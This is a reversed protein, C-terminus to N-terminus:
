WEQPGLPEKGFNALETKRDSFQHNMPRLDTSRVDDYAELTERKAKSLVGYALAPVIVANRPSQHHHITSKIVLSKSVRVRWNSVGGRGVAHAKESCSRRTLLGAFMLELARINNAWILQVMRLKNSTPDNLRQARKARRTIMALFRANSRPPLGPVRTFSLAGSDSSEGTM